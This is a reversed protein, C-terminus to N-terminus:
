GNIVQDKLFQFPYVLRKLFGGEPDSASEIQSFKWKVNVTFLIVKFKITFNKKSNLNNFSIALFQFM